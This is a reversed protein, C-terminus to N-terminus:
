PRDAMREVSDRIAKINEDIRAMSVAQSQVMNEVKSVRESFAILKETNQQIDAMMMSVTWVIAAAQTILGLLLTAPVSRSIHWGEERTPMM